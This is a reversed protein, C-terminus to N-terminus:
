IPAVEDAKIWGVKDGEQDVVKVQQWGETNDELRVKVGERLIFLDMSNKDPASKVYTNLVMIIGERNIQEYNMQRLAVLGLVIASALLLVGVVFLLRKAGVSSIFLFLISLIFAMWLAGLAIKAWGDSSYTKLTANIWRFLFAERLPDIRDAVKLNAVKLNFQADENSPDLRVAKEYYLVSKGVEDLKYYANGLNYYLEFSSLGNDVISQYLEAAREYRQEAYAANAESYLVEPVQAFSSLWMLCLLAISLLAKM